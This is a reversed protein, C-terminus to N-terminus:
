KEVKLDKEHTTQEKSENQKVEGKKVSRWEMMLAGIMGICVVILPIQFVHRLAENYGKLVEGKISDPVKILSTVGNGQISSPDFGPINGLRQQLQSNFINESVSGFIGASLQQSFFMLSAGIAVDKKPLVTQAALNPAQTVMGMGFGYLFQYGIWKPRGTDVQFTTLLGAGISMLAVGAILFPTYYGTRKVLVGAGITSVVMAMMMPLMRIGSQM